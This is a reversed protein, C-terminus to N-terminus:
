EFTRSPSKMVSGTNAVFTHLRVIVDDDEDYVTVEVKKVNGDQSAITLNSDPSNIYSVNIDKKYQQKYGSASGTEAVATIASGTMHYDDVDDTTTITEGTETIGFNALTTSRITKINNYKININGSRSLNNDSSTEEAASLLIVEYPLTEDGGKSNEDWKGSIAKTLDTSAILIAEQLLSREMNKGIVQNIMPLSLVAFSIVVIAFILEIMTFAKRLIM